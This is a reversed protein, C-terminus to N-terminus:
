AADFLNLILGDDDITFSKRLDSQSICRHTYYLYIYGTVPCWYLNKTCNRVHLLNHTNYKTIFRKMIWKVSKLWLLNVPALVYSCISVTMM